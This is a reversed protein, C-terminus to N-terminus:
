PLQHTEEAKWRELAAVIREGATGDGFPNPWERKLALMREVAAELDGEQKGLLMNAGVDITEPRETNDRMTICPVHLICAEEQIGGSDTMVLRSNALLKLFDLYGVPEIVRLGPTEELEGRLGFAELRVVTRPHIPFLVPQSLMSALTRIRRVLDRLIQESDVNEERHITVLAYSDKELGLSKLVSSRTLAIDLHENVADVVTNGVVEIQGPVRDNELNRAAGETPPFLYESIHDIIVRNHEEPMRWDHSRLGAEVHGVAIGLKRAALAGALNTNADGGVVVVWPKEELLREEIGRLMEATQAGHLKHEMTSLVRYKPTPLELDEFFQSDMNHSYHQGTHIVVHDKRQHVLARILPSMKIIGPRTGVIVCIRDELQDHQLVKLMWGRM